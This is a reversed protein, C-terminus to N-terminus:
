IIMRTDISLTYIPANSLTLLQCLTKPTFSWAGLINIEKLNPLDQRSLQLFLDDVDIEPSRPGTLTVTSLKTRYM